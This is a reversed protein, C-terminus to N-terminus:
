QETNVTLLQITNRKTYTNPIKSTEYIIFVLKTIIDVTETETAQIIKITVVNLEIEIRSKNYNTRRRM